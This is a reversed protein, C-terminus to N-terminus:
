TDGEQLLDAAIREMGERGLASQVLLHGGLVAPSIVTDAGARRLKAVNERDTAAAVIRIEPALERATLVSLADDGDDNTAAIVATARDIHVRRLAVEDSPDDVLATYGRDRLMTATDGDPTVVVFRVSEALEDLIPESLDGYGLVVVHDELTDLDSETMRGLTAAIRAQIAPGLLAGLAVAFSATGLIVVSLGFVRAAPTLPTVDGYGVTSATVLTYYFADLLGDSGDGIGTFEERLAYSGATGYMLVALLATGSALQATSLSLPRDFRRRSVILMPISLASLIVLPLSYASAQLAGQALTIPTLLIALRWAARFRRRLGVAALALVFGTLTGTFGATEQVLTPIYPALQGVVATTAINVIGTAVSLIAVIAVLVVTLRARGVGPPAVRMAQRYLTM